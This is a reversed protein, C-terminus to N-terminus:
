SPDKLAALLAANRCFTPPASGPPASALWGRCEEESPCAVCKIVANRLVRNSGRGTTTAVPRRGMCALGASRTEGFYRNLKALDAGTRRIMERMLARRTAIRRLISM